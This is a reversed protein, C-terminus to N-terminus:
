LKESDADLKMLNSFDPAWEEKNIKDKDNDTKGSQNHWVGILVISVPLYSVEIIAKRTSEFDTVRGNTFIM